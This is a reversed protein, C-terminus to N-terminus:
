LTGTHGAPGGSSGQSASAHVAVDIETALGHSRRVGIGVQHNAGAAVEGVDVEGGALLAHAGDLDVLEIWPQQRGQRLVRADAEHHDAGGPARDHQSGIANV